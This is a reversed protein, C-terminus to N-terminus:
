FQLFVPNNGKYGRDIVYNKGKVFLDIRNEYTIYMCAGCSDLIMGPYDTGDITVIVKDYYRFYHRGEIPTNWKGCAGTKANLCEKTAGALVLYGQYTYWGKENTDFHKECKGSGTCSGTGYGDDSYFSTLRYKTQQSKSKTPKTETKPKTVITEESTPITTTEVPKEKVASGENKDSTEKQSEEDIILVSEKEKKPINNLTRAIIENSIFM